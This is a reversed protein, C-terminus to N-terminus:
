HLSRDPKLFIAADALGSEVIRRLGNTAALAAAREKWAQEVRDRLLRLQGRYADAIERRAEEAESQAARNVFWLVAGAPAVVGALVFLLVLWTSSRIHM